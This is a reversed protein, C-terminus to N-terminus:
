SLVLFLHGKLVPSRMSLNSQVNSPKQLCWISWDSAIIEISLCIQRLHFCISKIHTWTYFLSLIEHENVSM